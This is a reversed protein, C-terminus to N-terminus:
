KPRPKNIPDTGTPRVTVEPAANRPLDDIPVMRRGHENYYEIEIIEEGNPGTRAPLTVKYRPPDNAPDASAPAIPPDTKIEILERDALSRAMDCLDPDRLVDLQHLWALKSTFRQLAELLHGLDPRMHEFEGMAFALKKEGEEASNVMRQERARAVENIKVVALREWGLEAALDSVEHTTLLGIGAIAELISRITPTNVSRIESEANRITSEAYGSLAAVDKQTLGRRNRIQALLSKKM